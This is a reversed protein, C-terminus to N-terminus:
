NQTKRILGVIWSIHHAGELLETEEWNAVQRVEPKLKERKPKDEATSVGANQDDDLQEWEAESEDSESDEARYGAGRNSAWDGDAKPSGDGNEGSGAPEVSLREMNEVLLNAAHADNQTECNSQKKKAPSRNPSQGNRPSGEEASRSEM